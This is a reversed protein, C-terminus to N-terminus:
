ETINYVTDGLAVQVNQGLAFWQAAEPHKALLAYYADSNFKINEQKKLNQANSDTWQNGNQFFTRGNVFKTANTYAAMKRASEAQGQGGGAGNGGMGAGMGAISKTADANASQIAAAPATAFKMSNQSQANAVGDAGTKNEKMNDYGARATATTAEDKDLAQMSRFAVPVDRRKEDELILYATYPTVIGFQRALATAEDRLEANEGHIRIEDLLYGIRRTAWLRPIYESATNKADFKVQYSFSQESGAVKGTLKATVEGSGTYRGALVLQDGKFIDPLDSPYLKSVKVDGDFDLKLNTIAPEKIRTFFNSLKVEIDEEPLVYQSFARTTEAIQDLLQTNVDNGLGFSFIRTNGGAKRIIALIEDDSRPGVTPLGDTLFIVVFPRDENDPRAKLATKLAEAIATGGTAKLDKIFKTAKKRNADNASVLKDFLTDVDTSFRVIEFRDEDNLNDVCFSLAKKAQSIKEGSMSGSTDLVFVVDKPAPKTDEKQPASPAALLLFYGDEDGEKYSLLQLGMEKGKEQGLVLQFDTDPKENKAEYGVIAHKQGDRKVEVNHSPSYISALPEDSTVDVAISLDKIPQSSFKETGLPYHYTLAGSDSKLLESYVIKVQKKSHPEIPFIRAKFVDRGSYELLAPDRMQRVIDEYIQKAKDAPLLEADTMQGNVEMSFKDIHADKPVPFLYTGELRQENPNYFVEDVTTTAIQGNIKVDVHHSSVELPAFPFHGRPVETREHIVIFGDGCLHTLSSFICAALLALSKSNM